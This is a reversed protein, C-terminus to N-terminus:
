IRSCLMSNGTMDSSPFPCVIGHDARRLVDFISELGSAIKKMAASASEEAKKNIAVLVKMRGAEPGRRPPEEICVATIHNPDNSISTIFALNSALTREREFSLIRTPDPAALNAPPVHLSPANPCERLLCLLASNEACVVAQSQHISIGADNM